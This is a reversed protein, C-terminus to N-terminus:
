SRRAKVKERRGKGDVSPDGLGLGCGSTVSVIGPHPLVSNLARSPYSREHSGKVLGCPARITAGVNYLANKCSILMQVSAKLVAPHHAKDLCNFAFVSRLRVRGQTPSFEGAQHGEPQFM